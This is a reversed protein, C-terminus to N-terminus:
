SVECARDQTSLVGQEPDIASSTLFRQVYLWARICQWPDGRVASAYRYFDLLGAVDVDPNMIQNSLRECRERGIGGIVTTRYPCGVPLSDGKKGRAISFPDVQEPLPNTASDLGFAQRALWVVISAWPCESRVSFQEKESLPIWLGSDIQMQQRHLSAM